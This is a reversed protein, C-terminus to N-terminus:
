FLHSPLAKYMRATFRKRALTVSYVISTSKLAALLDFRHCTRQEKVAMADHM